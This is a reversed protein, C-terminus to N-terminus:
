HLEINEYEKKVLVKSLDLGGRFARQSLSGYLNDLESLNQTYRSKLSEIKEIITAFEFQLKIPPVIIMISKLSQQNIKYTGNTTRALQEIQSRIFPLKWMVEIFKKNIKTIDINACIMTDPFIINDPNDKVVVSRGVLKINGNGIEIQDVKALMRRMILHMAKEDDIIVVKLSCGEEGNATVIVTYVV